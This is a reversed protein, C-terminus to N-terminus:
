KIKSLENKLKQLETSQEIEKYQELLESAKEGDELLSKYEVEAWISMISNYVVELMSANNQNKQEEFLKLLQKCIPVEEQLYDLIWMVKQYKQKIHLNKFNEIQKKLENM